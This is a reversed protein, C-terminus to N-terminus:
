NFAIMRETIQQFYSILNLIFSNSSIIPLSATLIVQQDLFYNTIHQNWTLSIGEGPETQSLLDQGASQLRSLAVSTPILSICLCKGLVPLWTNIVHHFGYEARMLMSFKQIQSKSFGVGWSNTPTPPKVSHHETFGVNSLCRFAHAHIHIYLTIWKLSACSTAQWDRAHHTGQWCLDQLLSCCTKASSVHQATNWVLSLYTIDAPGQRAM